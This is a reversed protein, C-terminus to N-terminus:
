ETADAAASEVTEAWGIIDVVKATLVWQWHEDGENWDAMITDYHASLQKSGDVRREARDRLSMPPRGAGRREGGSNGKTGPM